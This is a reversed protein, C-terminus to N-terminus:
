ASRELRAQVFEVLLTRPNRTPWPPGAVDFPEGVDAVLNGDGDLQGGDIIRDGADINGAASRELALRWEERETAANATDEDTTTQWVYGLYRTWTKQETPDGMGDPPGDQTVHEVIIPQRLM